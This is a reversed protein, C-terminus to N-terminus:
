HTGPQLRKARWLLMLAGAALTIALLYPAGPFVIDGVGRSFAGFLRTMLPPSIILALSTLSAIAGQLEGQRSSPTLTSMLGNMSPGTMFGLASPVVFCLAVVGQTSFAFGLYGIMCMTLGVTASWYSGVKRTLHPVLMGQGLVSLVGYMGLSYGVMQATWGFKLMSYYPWTAPLAQLTLQLLFYAGLVGFVAPYQHLQRIAGLVHARALSFPRRLQPKLSEPLVFTGYLVNLMALGAAAFFPIRLGYTSLTGGLIPGIVIGAGFAGGMLGFRRARDAVPTVDALYAGATAVTAGFLGACAQSVFLWGISHSFGMVLYNLSFATLSLLLVPRRGFHDSLNGLVPAAIFQFIAFIASLEGGYLSASTLGQGTLTGILRPMVPILLGAGM